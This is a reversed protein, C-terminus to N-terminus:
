NRPQATTARASVFHVVTQLLRQSREGLPLYFPPALLQYRWTSQTNKRPGTAGLQLTLKPM